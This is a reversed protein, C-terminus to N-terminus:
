MIDELDVNQWDDSNPSKRKLHMNIRPSSFAELNKHRGAGSLHHTQVKRTLLFDFNNLNFEVVRESGTEAEEVGIEEYLPTTEDRIIKGGAKKIREIIEDFLAAKSAAVTDDIERFNSPDSYVM